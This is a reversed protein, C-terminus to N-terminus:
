VITPAYMMPITNDNIHVLPDVCFVNIHPAYPGNKSQDANKLQKTLPQSTSFMEIVVHTKNNKADSAVVANPITLIFRRVAKVPDM